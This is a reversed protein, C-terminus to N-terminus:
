QRAKQTQRIDKVEELIKDIEEPPNEFRKESVKQFHLKFDEKTLNTNAAATKRERQGLKKLNQLSRLLM